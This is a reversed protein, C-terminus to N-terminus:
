FKTEFGLLAKSKGYGPMDNNSILVKIKSNKTTNFSIGAGVSLQSQYIDLGATNSYYNSLAQDESLNSFRNTAPDTFNGFVEFQLGKENEAILPISVLDYHANNKFTSKTIDTKFTIKKYFTTFVNDLYLYTKNSIQYVSNFSLLESRQQRNEDSQDAHCSFSASFLSLFCINLLTTQKM